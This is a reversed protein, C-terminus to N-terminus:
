QDTITLFEPQVKALFSVIFMTIIGEIFMMPLHIAMTAQAARLFGTDSIWLTTAIMLTSLFVSLFGGAFSAISQKKGQQKLWPKVLYYCLLAPVAMNITNVGLVYIGGYQFLLAQLLLATLIAPFCAWGLLIGLLGGLVLHVSGPGVPVHILTAVFFTATLLSTSMIKEYNMNKIGIATGIVTLVGGGALVPVTLVGESIHM